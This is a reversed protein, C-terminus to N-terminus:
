AGVSIDKLSADARRTTLEEVFAENPAYGIGPTHPAKITGRESVTVPPEVIDQHWYRSSASVDGPLTFGALTSMAINHARGIGTELMGGCWVPIGKSLALEQIERAAKHGGVRGLKINIIRCADMELAHQADRLCIISEDLCIPTTLRSQLKSHDLLDGAALPQEIMLLGFKDLERMTDVDQELQYASNADVSLRIDPFANRVAAVFSVDKGPKIKLKIRQYGSAVERRVVEVLKGPSEQLGISVGCDIETLTGGLHKWLPKELLKAELDWIATEVAAIAMRNGKIASLANEVDEAKSVGASSLMPAVNSLIVSWATDVSEPNYLPREMATCEGFGAVGSADVVRILAVRRKTTVGFSTEFASKLPLEIERLEIRELQLKQM